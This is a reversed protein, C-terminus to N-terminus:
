KADMPIVRPKEPAYCVVRPHEDKMNKEIHAVLAAGVEWSPVKAGLRRRGAVFDVLEVGELPTFTAMAKRTSPFTYKPESKYSVDYLFVFPTKCAEGTAVPETKELRHLKGGLTVWVTGDDIAVDGYDAPWVMRAVEIWKTGDFRHISSGDSVHLEGKTSVFGDTIPRPPAPLPEFHDGKWALVPDSTIWADDDKGILLNGGPRKTLPALEIIKPQGGDKPWVEVAREDKCYEGLSFLTGAPSAAFFDPRVAPVAGTEGWGSRPKDGKGKCRLDWPISLRTIAPGRVGVVKYGESGDYGAVLVSEGVRAVGSIWGMGGGPTFTVAAGKGTLPQYTPQAARGNEYSYTADIADPYQGGVWRLMGRGFASETIGLTAKWEIGEATVRGVRNWTSILVAGPVTFLDVGDEFEKSKEAEAAHAPVARMTPPEPPPVDIARAASASASPAASSAPAPEASAVGDSAKGSCSTAGGLTLLAALATLRMSTPRTKM